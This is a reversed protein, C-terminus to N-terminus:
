NTCHTAIKSNISSKEGQWETLSEKWSYYENTDDHKFSEETNNHFGNEEDLLFGLERNANRYESCWESKPAKKKINDEYFTRIESYKALNLAIWVKDIHHDVTSLAPGVINSVMNWITYKQNNSLSSDKDFEDVKDLFAARKEPYEVDPSELKNKWEETKSDASIIGGGETSVTVSGTGEPTDGISSAPTEMHAQTQPDDTIFECQYGNSEANLVSAPVDAGGTTTVGTTAVGEGSENKSWPHPHSHENGDSDKELTKHWQKDIKHGEKIYFFMTSVYWISLLSLLIISTIFINNLFRKM